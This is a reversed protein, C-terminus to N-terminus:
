TLNRGLQIDAKQDETLEEFGLAKLRAERATARSEEFEDADKLVKIQYSLITINKVVAELELIRSHIDAYKREGCAKVDQACEFMEQIRLALDKQKDELFNM